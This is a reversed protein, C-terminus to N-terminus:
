AERDRVKEAPLAAHHPFQATTRLGPWKRKLDGRTIEGKRRIMARAAILKAAPVKFEAAAKEIALPKTPL